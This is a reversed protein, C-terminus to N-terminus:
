GSPCVWMCSTCAHKGARAPAPTKGCTQPLPWVCCITRPLLGFSARGFPAPMTVLMTALMFSACTVGNPPVRASEWAGKRGMCTCPQTRMDRTMPLQLLRGMPSQQLSGGTVWQFVHSHAGAVWGLGQGFQSFLCGPTGGVCGLACAHQRNSCSAFHMLLDSQLLM